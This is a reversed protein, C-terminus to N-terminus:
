LCTRLAESDTHVTSSSLHEKHKLSLGTRDDRPLWNHCCTSVDQQLNRALFMTGKGFGTRSICSELAHYPCSTSASVPLPVYLDPVKTCKWGGGRPSTCNRGDQAEERYFPSSPGVCRPFCPDTLGYSVWVEALDELWSIPEYKVKSGSFSFCCTFHSLLLSCKRDQARIDHLGM